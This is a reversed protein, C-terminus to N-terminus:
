IHELYGGSNLRDSSVYRTAIGFRLLVWVPCLLLVLRFLRPEPVLDLASLGWPRHFERKWGNPRMLLQMPM